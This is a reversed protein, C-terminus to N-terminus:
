KRRRRSPNERVRELGIRAGRCPGRSNKRYLFVHMRCFGTTFCFWCDRSKEDSKGKEQKFTQDPAPALCQIQTRGAIAITRPQRRSNLLKRHACPPLIDLLRLNGNEIDNANAAANKDSETRGTSIRACDSETMTSRSTGAFIRSPTM